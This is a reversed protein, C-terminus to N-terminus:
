HSSHARVLIMDQMQRQVDISSRRRRSTAARERIDGSTENNRQDQEHGDLSVRGDNNNWGPMRPNTDDRITITTIESRNDSVSAHPDAESNIHHSSEGDDGGDDQQEEAYYSAETTDQHPPAYQQKSPYHDHPYADPVIVESYSARRQEQLPRSTQPQHQHQQLPKAQQHRGQQDLTQKHQRRGTEEQHIQQQQHIAQTVAIKQSRPSKHTLHTPRPGAVGSSVVEGRPGSGRRTLLSPSSVTTSSPPVNKAGTSGTRKLSNRRGEGGNLEKKSQATNSLLSGSNSRSDRHDMHTSSKSSNSISVSSSSSGRRDKSVHDVEVSVMSGQNDGDYGAEAGQAGLIDYLVEEIGSPSTHLDDSEQLGEPGQLSPRFGDDEGLQGEDVNSYSEYADNDKEDEGKAEVEQM